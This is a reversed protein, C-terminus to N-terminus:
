TNRQPLTNVNNKGFLKVNLILLSGLVAPFIINVLWICGTVALIGIQNTSFLMFLTMGIQGRISLEAIGPMPIIALLLFMVSVACCGQWSPIAVGFLHFLLLYQGTFICFRVASLALIELLEGTSFHDLQTLFFRYKQLFTLKEAIRVLWSIKFYFLLLLALAAGTGFLLGDIWYYSLGALKDSHLLKDQLVISGVLGTILTIILQSISGVFTLTAAQIRKGEAVYFVRGVFEGMRNPTIMTFAVGSLVSEFSRFFSIRQVHQLLLQWKKAELGWNVLMLGVTVYLLWDQPGTLSQRITHWKQHWDPQQQLQRYISFSLVIFLVPGIFYNLFFRLKQPLRLSYNKTNKLPPL